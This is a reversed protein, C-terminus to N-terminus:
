EQIVEEELKLMRDLILSIKEDQSEGINLDNENELILPIPEVENFNEMEKNCCQSKEAYTVGSGIEGTELEYNDNDEDDDEHEHIDRRKTIEWAQWLTVPLFM